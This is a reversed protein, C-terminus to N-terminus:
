KFRSDSTIILGDLINKRVDKTKSTNLEEEIELAAM